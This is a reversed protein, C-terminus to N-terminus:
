CEFYVHTIEKITKYIDDLAKRDSVTENLRVEGMAIVTIMLSPTDDYMWIMTIVSERYSITDMLYTEDSEGHSTGHWSEVWDMDDFLALMADRRADLTKEKM